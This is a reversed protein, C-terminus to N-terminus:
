EAKKAASKTAKKAPAKAESDADAKKAATKKVVPKKAPAEAEAKPAEPEAAATEAPKDDEVPESFDDNGTEILINYWQIFKKIDGGRVRDRDYEPLVKEFWNRQADAPDKTSVPAIKGGTQAKAKAFVSNLAIEGDVTYMAIDALSLVKDHQLAPVRSKDSLNECILMNKGHAILRYLGPKGSIALIKDIM